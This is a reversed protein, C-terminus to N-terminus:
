PAYSISHDSFQVWLRVEKTQNQKAVDDEPPFPVLPSVQVDVVVGSADSPERTGAIIFSHVPGYYGTPGWDQLFDHYGYDPGTHWMKYASQFDGASVENLFTRVTANESHFRFFIWYMGGLIVAAIVIAIGIKFYKSHPRVPEPRLLTSPLAM